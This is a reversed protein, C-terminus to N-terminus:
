HPKWFSAMYQYRMGRHYCSFRSLLLISRPTLHPLHRMCRTTNVNQYIDHKEEFLTVFEKECNQFCTVEKYGMDTSVPVGTYGVFLDNM